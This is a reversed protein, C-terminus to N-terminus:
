VAVFCLSVDVEAQQLAINHFYAPQGDLGRFKIIIQTAPFASPSDAKDAEIEGGGPEILRGIKRPFDDVFPVLPQPLAEAFRNGSMM